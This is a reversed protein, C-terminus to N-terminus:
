IIDSLEVSMILSLRALGAQHHLHQPCVRLLLVTTPWALSTNAQLKAGVDGLPETVVVAELCDNAAVLHAHVPILNLM